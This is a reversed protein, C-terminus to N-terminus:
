LGWTITLLLLLRGCTRAAPRSRVRPLKKVYFDEKIQNSALLGDLIQKELQFTM